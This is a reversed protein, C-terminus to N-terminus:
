HLRIEGPGPRPLRGLQPETGAAPLAPQPQRGARQSHDPDTRAPSARVSQRRNTRRGREEESEALRSGITTKGTPGNCFQNISINLTDSPRPRVQCAQAIAGQFSGKSTIAIM